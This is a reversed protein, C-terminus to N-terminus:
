AGQCKKGEGGKSEKARKEGEEVEEVEVGFGTLTLTAEGIEERELGRKGEDREIVCKWLRLGLNLRLELGLM